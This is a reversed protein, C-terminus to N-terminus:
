RHAAVYWFAAAAGAIFFCIAVLAVGLVILRNEPDILARNTKSSMIQFSTHYFKIKTM